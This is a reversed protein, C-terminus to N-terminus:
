GPQWEPINEALDFSGMEGLGNNKIAESILQELERKNFGEAKFQITRQTNITYIAPVSVFGLARSLHYDPHDIAVRFGALKKRAFNQTEQLPDQSIFILFEKLEPFAMQLQQIVKITLQSANCSEKYFILIYTNYKSLDKDTIKGGEALPLQFEPFSQIAM